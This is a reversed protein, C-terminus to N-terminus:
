SLHIFIVIFYKGAIYGPGPDANKDNYDHRKSQYSEKYGDNIEVIEATEKTAM